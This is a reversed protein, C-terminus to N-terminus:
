RIKLSGLTTTLNSLPFIPKSQDELNAEVYEGMYFRVYDVWVTDKTHGIAIRIRANNDNVTQEWTTHYEAWEDTINFEKSGWNAWPGHNEGGALLITRTTKPETKVWAALTYIEGAKIEIGTEQSFNQNLGVHWWTGGAVKQIDIRMSQKGTLREEQDIVLQSAAGEGAHNELVWGLQGDEFGPNLLINEIEESLAVGSVAFILILILTLKSM